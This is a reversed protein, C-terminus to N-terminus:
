LLGSPNAPNQNREIAICHDLETMQGPTFFQKLPFAAPVQALRSIQIVVFAGGPAATPAAAPEFRPGAISPVLRAPCRGKDPVDEGSL